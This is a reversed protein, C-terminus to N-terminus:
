NWMGGEGSGYLHDDILCRSVCLGNHVKLNGVMTPLAPKERGDVEAKGPIAYCNECWWVNCRECWRGQLCTTCRVIFPPYTEDAVEFRQAAKVSASHWPPPYLLPLRSETQM